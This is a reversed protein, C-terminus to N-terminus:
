GWDNLKQHLNKELAKEIEAFPYFYTSGLQTHPIVSAERLNQLTAPSINLWRCVEKSRLYQRQPNFGKPIREQLLEALRIEFAALDAKTLIEHTQM